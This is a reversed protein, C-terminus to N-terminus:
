ILLVYIQRYTVIGLIHTGYKPKIKPPHIAKHETHSNWCYWFYMAVFKFLNFPEFIHFVWSQIYVNYSYNKHLLTHALAKSVHSQTITHWDFCNSSPRIVLITHCRFRCILIAFKEPVFVCIHPHVILMLTLLAQAQAMYKHFCQTCCKSSM